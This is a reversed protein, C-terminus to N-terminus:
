AVPTQLLGVNGAKEGEINQYLINQYLQYEPLWGAM